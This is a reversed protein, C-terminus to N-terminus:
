GQWHLPSGRDLLGGSSMWSGLRQSGFRRSEEGTGAHLRVQLLWPDDGSASDFCLGVLTYAYM